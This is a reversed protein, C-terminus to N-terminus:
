QEAALRGLWDLAAPAALRFAALAPGVIRGVEARGLRDMLAYPGIGFRLAGRAGRGFAVPEAVVEDLAQLV